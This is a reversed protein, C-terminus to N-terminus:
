FKNTTRSRKKFPLRSDKYHFKLFAYVYVNINLSQTTMQQIYRNNFRVIVSPQKCRYRGWDPSQVFCHSVIEEVIITPSVMTINQEDFKKKISNLLCIKLPNQYKNPESDMEYLDDDDSSTSTMTLYNNTFDQGFWDDAPFFHNCSSKTKMISGPISSTAYMSSNVQLNQERCELKKTIYVPDILKLLSGPIKRYIAGLKKHVSEPFLPILEQLQDTLLAM